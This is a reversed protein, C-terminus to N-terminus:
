QKSLRARKFRNFRGGGEEVVVKREMKTSTGARKLKDTSIRVWKGSVKNFQWNGEFPFIEKNKSTFNDRIKNLSSSLKKCKQVNPKKFNIFYELISGIRELNKAM